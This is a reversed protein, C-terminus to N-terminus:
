PRTGGINRFQGQGPFTGGQFIGVGGPFQQASNNTTSATITVAVMDGARLCQNSTEVCGTIETMQSNAAGTTVAITIPTKNEGYLVEVTKNRGQSKIARTPVQIVNAHSEVTITANATMGTKVALGAPEFQVDVQYTVVDQNTQSVNSVTSVTGTFVKGPLADLTITVQEGAKIKQIDSENVALEVHMGSEDYITLATDGVKIEANPEASVAAVVGSFPAKLVTEDLQAKADDLDKQAGTVTEEAAAIESAMATDYLAQLAAQKTAVTAEAATIDSKSPGALLENLKDRAKDVTTQATAMEDATPGAKLQDLATQAKVVTTEAKALDGATPGANLQDLTTQAKTIATQASALEDRSPGAM